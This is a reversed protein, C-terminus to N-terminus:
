GDFVVKRFDAWRVLVKKGDAQQVFIGKNDEDVDNSDGLDFRRGDKLTVRSGGSHKEISQVLGLEIDFELGGMRGDLIEWSYEEDNDWRITGKYQAGSETSIVGSLRKAEPFDGFGVSGPNPQFELRDFEGWPVTVQGFGPDSVLIGRNDDDVDNSDDLVMERGSKLVVTSASWGKRQISAIEEFDIKRDEGREEGDLVDKGLVEDLDWTVYGSFQEGRRTTLRGYLRSGFKSRIEPPAPGFEVLTIDRWKLERTGKRADEILTKGLGNGLDNSGGVFEVQRGSRLTLLARNRGTPEITRIHGFRIASAARRPFGREDDLDIRFGLFSFGRPEEKEQGLMRLLEQNHEEPIPKNGNFLDVWGAENNGWRILGELVEGNRTTIKGYLRDASQAQLAGSVALFAALGFLRKIQLRRMATGKEMSLLKIGASLPQM